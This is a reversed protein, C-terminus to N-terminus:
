RRPPGQRHGVALTITALQDPNRGFIKPRQLNMRKVGFRDRGGEPRERALDAVSARGLLDGSPKM